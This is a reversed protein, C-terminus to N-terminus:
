TEEGREPFLQHTSFTRPSRPRLQAWSRPGNAQPCLLWSHSCHCKRPFGTAAQPPTHPPFMGGSLTTHPPRGASPSRCTPFPRRGSEPAAQCRAPAHSARAAPRGRRGAVHRPQQQGRLQSAPSVCRQAHLLPPDLSLLCWSGPCLLCRPLLLQRPCTGAPPAEPCAAPPQSHALFPASLWAGCEGAGPAGRGAPEGPLGGAGGAQGPSGGLRGAARSPQLAAGAGPGPLEMALAPSRVETIIIVSRAREVSAHSTQCPGTKKRSGLCSPLQASLGPVSLPPQPPGLVTILQQDRPAWGGLPPCGSDLGSPATAWAHCPLRLSKSHIIVVASDGPM